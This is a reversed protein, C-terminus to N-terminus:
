FIDINEDSLLIITVNETPIQFAKLTAAIPSNM